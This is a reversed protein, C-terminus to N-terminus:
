HIHGSNQVGQNELTMAVWDPQPLSVSVSFGHLETICFTKWFSNMSISDNLIHLLLPHGLWPM